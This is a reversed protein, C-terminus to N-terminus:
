AIFMKCEEIVDVTWEMVVSIGYSPALGTYHERSYARRPERLFDEHVCSRILDRLRREM